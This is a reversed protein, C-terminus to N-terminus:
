RWGGYGGGPGGYLPDIDIIRKWWQKEWNNNYYDIMLSNYNLSDHLIRRYSPDWNWGYAKAYGRYRSIAELNNDVINYERYTLEGSRIGDYIRGYQEKMRADIDAYMRDGNRYGGVQYNPHYDGNVYMNYLKDLERQRQELTRRENEDLRGDAMFKARLRETEAQYMQLSTFEDRNLRGTRTERYFDADGVNRRGFPNDFIPVFHGVERNYTYPFFMKM